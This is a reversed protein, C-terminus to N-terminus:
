IRERRAPINPVRFDLMNFVKAGGSTSQRTAIRHGGEHLSPAVIEAAATLAQAAVTLHNNEAYEVLAILRSLFLEHQGM